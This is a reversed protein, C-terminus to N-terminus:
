VFKLCLIVWLDLVFYPHCGSKLLSELSMWVFSSATKSFDSYGLKFLIDLGFIFSKQHTIKSFVPKTGHM